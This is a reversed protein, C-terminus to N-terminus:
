PSIESLPVPQRLGSLDDVFEYLLKGNRDYIKAGGSPLQNIAEEPPVLDSAYSQYVVMGVSAIVAGGIVAAALGAMAFMLWLPRGHGNRRLARHRRRAYGSATM